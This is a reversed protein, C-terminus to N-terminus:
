DQILVCHKSIKKMREEQTEKRDILYQRSHLHFIAMKLLFDENKDFFIKELM